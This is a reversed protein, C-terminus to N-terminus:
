RKLFRNGLLKQMVEDKLNRSIPIKYKGVQIENAEISNVKSLAIIYSKHVKIFQDAPLYEEVSKFTLYSIYKGDSTYINV